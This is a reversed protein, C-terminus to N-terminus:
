NSTPESLTGILKKDNSFGSQFYTNTFHMRLPEDMEGGQEEKAQFSHKLHNKHTLGVFLNDGQGSKISLSILTDFYLVSTTFVM